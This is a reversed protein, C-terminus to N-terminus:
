IKVFYALWSGLSTNAFTDEGHFIGTTKGADWLGTDAARPSHCGRLCHSSQFRPAFSVGGVPLPPHCRGSTTEWRHCLASTGM